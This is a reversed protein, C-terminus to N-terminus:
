WDNHTKVLQCTQANEVGEIKKIKELVTSVTLPAEVMVIIDFMGRVVDVYDSENLCDIQQIIARFQEPNVEEKLKILVYARFGM